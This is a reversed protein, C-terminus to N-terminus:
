SDLQSVFCSQIRVFEAVLEAVGAFLYNSCKKWIEPPQLLEVESRLVATMTVVQSFRRRSAANRVSRFPRCRAFTTIAQVAAAKRSAACFCNALRILENNGTM